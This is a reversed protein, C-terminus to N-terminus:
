SDSPTTTDAPPPAATDSPNAPPTTTADGANGGPTTSQDGAGSPSTPTANDSNTPPTANRDKCGAVLAGAAILPILLNMNKMLGGPLATVPVPVTRPRM